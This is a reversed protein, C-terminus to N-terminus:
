ISFLSQQTDYIAQNKQTFFLISDQVPSNHNKLPTKECRSPPHQDHFYRFIQYIYQNKADRRSSRSKDRSGDSHGTRVFKSKLAKVISVPAKIELRPKATTRRVLMPRKVYKKISDIIIPYAYFCIPQIESVKGTIKERGIPM